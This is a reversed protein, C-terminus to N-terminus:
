HTNLALLPLLHLVEQIRGKMEAFLRGQLGETDSLVAACYANEAAIHGMIEPDSRTDDRLWYYPDSRVDGHETISKAKQVAM